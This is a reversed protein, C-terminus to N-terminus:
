IEPHQNRHQFNPKNQTQKQKTNPHTLTSFATRPQQPGKRTKPQKKNKTTSHNKNANKPTQKPRTPTKPAHPKPPKTARARPHFNKFAGKKLFAM